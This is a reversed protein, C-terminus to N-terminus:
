CLSEREGAYLVRERIAKGHSLCDTALRFFSVFGPVHARVYLWPLMTGLEVMALNGKKLELVM